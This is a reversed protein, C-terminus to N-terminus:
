EEVSGEGPAEPRDTAWVYRIGLLFTDGASAGLRDPSLIAPMAILRVQLDPWLHVGARLGFRVVFDNREVLHVVEAGPTIYLEDDDGFRIELGLSASWIFPPDLVVRLTEEFVFFGPEVLTVYTGTIESVISVPGVPIELDLQAELALYSSPPGSRDRIQLHDYEDLATLFSRTFTFFYRGGVRYSVFPISGRFGSYIGVGRGSILPDAEFAIYTRHPTGWGFLFGPRLFLFGLDLRGSVFWRPGGWFGLEPEPEAEPAPAPEPADGLRDEQASTMPAALLSGVLM